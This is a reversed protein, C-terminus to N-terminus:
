RVTYEDLLGQYSMTVNFQFPATSDSNLVQRENNTNFLYNYTEITKEAPFLTYNPTTFIIRQKTLTLNMEFARIIPNPYGRISQVTYIFSKSSMDIVPVTMLLGLVYFKTLNKLATTSTSSSSTNYVRLTLYNLPNAAISSLLLSSNLPLCYGYTLGGLFGYDM